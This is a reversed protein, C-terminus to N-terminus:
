QSLKCVLDLIKEVSNRKSAPLNQLVTALRQTQKFVDDDIESLLASVTTQLTEAIQELTALSPLTVGREFRSVSEPEIGLREALVAQTMGSYKRQEQINKSLREPLTTKANMQEM